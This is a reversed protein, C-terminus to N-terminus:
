LVYIRLRVGLCRYAEILKMVRPELEDAPAVEPHSLPAQSGLSVGDFFYSWSPDICHRDKTYEKLLEEIYSENARTLYDM